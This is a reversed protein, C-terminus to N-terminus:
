DDHVKDFDCNAEPNNLPQEQISKTSSGLLCARLFVKQALSFTVVFGM